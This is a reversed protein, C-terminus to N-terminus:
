GTFALWTAVGFVLAAIALASVATSPFRGLRAHADMALVVAGGSLVVPLGTYFVLVCPIAAAALILATRATGDPAQSLGRRVVVGFVVAVEVVAFAVAIPLEVLGHKGTTLEWGGTAMHKVPTDLFSGIFLLLLALLGTGIASPWLGIRTAPKDPTTPTM